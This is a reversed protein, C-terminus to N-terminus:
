GQIDRKQVTSVTGDEATFILGKNDSAVSFTGAYPSPLQLGTTTILGEVSLYALHFAPFVLLKDIPATLQTVAGNARLYQTNDLGIANNLLGANSPLTQNADPQFVLKKRRLTFATLFEEGTAKKRFSYPFLDTPNCLIRVEEPAGGTFLLWDQQTIDFASTQVEQDADALMLIANDQKVEFVVRDDM